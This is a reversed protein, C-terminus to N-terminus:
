DCFLDVMPSGTYKMRWEGEMHKKDCSEESALLEEVQRLANYTRIMGTVLPILSLFILISVVVAATADAEEATISPVYEALLAAAIVAISRM